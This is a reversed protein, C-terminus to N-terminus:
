NWLVAAILDFEDLQRSHALKLKHCHNDTIVVCDPVLDDIQVLFHVVLRDQFQIKKEVGIEVPNRDLIDVKPHDGSQLFLCAAMTTHHGCNQICHCGGNM